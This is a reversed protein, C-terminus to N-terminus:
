IAELYPEIESCDYGLKNSALLLLGKAAGIELIKSDSNIKFKDNIKNYIKKTQNEIKSYNSICWDINRKEQAYHKKLNIVM